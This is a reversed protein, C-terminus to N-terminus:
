IEKPTLLGSPLSLYRFLITVDDSIYAFIKDGFPVFIQNYYSMLMLFAISMLEDLFYASFKTFLGKYNQRSDPPLEGFSPSGGFHVCQNNKACIEFYIASFTM